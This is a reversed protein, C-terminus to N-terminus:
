GLGQEQRTLFKVIVKAEEGLGDQSGIKDLEKEIEKTILKM